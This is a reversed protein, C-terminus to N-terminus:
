HNLPFQLDLVDEFPLVTIQSKGPLTTRKLEIFGEKIEYSDIPYDMGNRLKVAIVMLLLDRMFNNLALTKYLLKLKIIVQDVYPLHIAM